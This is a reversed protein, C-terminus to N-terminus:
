KLWTKDIIGYFIIIRFFKRILVQSVIHFNSVTTIVTDNATILVLIEQDPSLKMCRLGGQICNDLEQQLEPEVSIPVIVGSEYACWVQGVDSSYEVGVSKNASENEININITRIKLDDKFSIEYLLRDKLVYLDDNDPNTCCFVNVDLLEVLERATNNKNNFDRISHTHVELNKM